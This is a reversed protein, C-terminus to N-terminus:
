RRLKGLAEGLRDLLGCRPGPLLQQATRRWQDRDQRVEDLQQRLLEVERELAVVEATQGGGQLPQLDPYVRSLEAADVRHQGDLTNVASLCVASSKDSSSAADWERWVHPM